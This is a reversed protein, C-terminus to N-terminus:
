IEVAVITQASPVMSGSLCNGMRVIEPKGFYSILDMVDEDANVIRPM